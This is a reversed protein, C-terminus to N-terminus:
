YFGTSYYKFIFLLFLIVLLQIFSNGIQKTDVFHFYITFIPKKM